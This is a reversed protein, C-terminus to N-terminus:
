QNFEVAYGGVYISGETSVRTYIKGPKSLSEGQEIIFNQKPLLNYKVAYASLAGAAVGTVPDEKIGALPNFQRTHFDSHMDRTEQTFVYVGRSGSYKCFETIADLNPSVSLLVGLSKVPILLKPVGTSVIELPLDPIADITIGLLQAAQEKTPKVDSFIAREQQMEIFGDKFCTIPQIGALTEQTFTKSIQDGLDVHGQKFLEYWAAITAHGCLDVEQTPTFFRLKFDVKDSNFVFVSESFGLEKAAEIMQADSLNEPFLIVGAPNGEAPNQTFAKVLLPKSEM